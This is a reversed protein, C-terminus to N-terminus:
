EIVQPAEPLNKLATEVPEGYWKSRYEELRMVGMAVDQRDQQRETEDDALISDKFDCVFQYDSTTLGNWFALAYVLDELCDKLNKQIATVTDYKRKKSAKIETATKEVTQPNSIDGYSLGVSFEINRKYEELGTILDNQRLEPSFEKFLEDGNVNDINVARYLRKNLRPLTGDAKLAAPDVHVAREGSEFEWDIRGFQIDAKKIIDEASDFVSIGGHGGDVTNDIPNRYYGFACKKMLPYSIEPTIKAWEAVDTLPIERGLVSRSRSFYAKNTITLGKEPDLNHYELRTYYGSDGLKKFEPFIVKVLRGNVDYEIPIFASQPVYQVKDGGLPKIVMAGSALAKQFNMVIDHVANQFIDDLRKETVEATMENFVINSFERCVSKELRLSKVDNNTWPAKGFYMQMWIDIKNIMLESQVIEINMATQIDRVAFLRNILGKMYSIFGM